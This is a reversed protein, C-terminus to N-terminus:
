ETEKQNNQLFTPLTGLFPECYKFYNGQMDKYKGEKGKGFGICKFKAVRFSEANENYFICWDNEKPQWHEIDKITNINSSAIHCSSKLNDWSIETFLETDSVIRSIKSIKNTKTFRIWDGIKFKPEEPKIRYAINDSFTIHKDYIVDTWKHPTYVTNFHQITKGEAEAKRFEVYEDNIILQLNNQQKSLLNSMRWSDVSDVKYWITYSEEGDNPDAVIRRGLLEGGNLWHDFEDKYKKILEKNM